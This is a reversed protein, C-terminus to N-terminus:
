FIQLFFQCIYIAMDKSICEKQFILLIEELTKQCTVSFMHHSLPWNKTIDIFEKGFFLELGGVFDIKKPLPQIEETEKGDGLQGYGDHGWAYLENNSTIVMSHSWGCKVERIEGEIGDVRRPVDVDELDGTGLQGFGNGGWPYLSGGSLLAISHERGCYIKLPVSALCIRLPSMEKHTSSGIGLQGSGNEGWCFLEGGKSLAMVHGSGCAFEVIDRVGDVRQPALVDAGITNVGLQGCANNGWSWLWGTRTLAVSFNFGCGISVVEEEMLVKTPTERLHRSDIGLQGHLNYGWSYLSGDSLLAMSHEHGCCIKTVKGPTTIKTPTNNSERDGNGLQGSSNNGFAYLQHDTTLLLTHLAGQAIQLPYGELLVKSPTPQNTNHGLGLQGDRNLGWGYLGKQTFVFSHVSLAM